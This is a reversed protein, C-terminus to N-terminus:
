TKRCPRFDVSFDVSANAFDRRLHIADEPLIDMPLEAKHEEFFNWLSIGDVIRGRSLQSKLAQEM